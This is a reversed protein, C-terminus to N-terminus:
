IARVKAYKSPEKACTYAENCISVFAERFKIVFAEKFISVYTQVSTPRHKCICQTPFSPIGSPLITGLKGTGKRIYVARKRV